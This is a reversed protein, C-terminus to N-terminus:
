TSVEGSGFHPSLGLGARIRTATYLTLRTHAAIQQDTWGDICLEAVLLGRAVTSLAEAPAEGDLCLVYLDRMPDPEALPLDRRNKFAAIDRVLKARRARDVAARRTHDRRAQARANRRSREAARQVDFAPLRRGAGHGANSFTTCPPSLMVGDVLGALHKLPVRSVDARVRVHGAATATRCAAPDLEFGLSRNRAGALRRGESWGGPGAFAEVDVLDTM